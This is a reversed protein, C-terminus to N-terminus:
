HSCIFKGYDDSESGHNFVADILSAIGMASGDPKRGFVLGDDTWETDGWFGKNEKPVDFLNKTYTKKFEFFNSELYQQFEATTMVGKSPDGEQTNDGVFVVSKLSDPHIVIKAMMEPIPINQGSGEENDKEHATPQSLGNKYGAITYIIFSNEKGTITDLRELGMRLSCELRAWTGQNYRSNQPVRNVTKFTNKKRNFNANFDGNPVMHGRDYSHERDQDSHGEFTAGNGQVEIGGAERLPHFTKDGRSPGDEKEYYSPQLKHVTYLIRKFETSFCTMYQSGQNDGVCYGKYDNGFDECAINSLRLTYNGSCFDNSATKKARDGRLLLSPDAVALCALSFLLVAVVFFSSGLGSM